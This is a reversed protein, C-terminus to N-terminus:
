FQIRNHLVKGIISIRKEEIQKASFEMPQYRQNEPQLILKEGRLFVRKLTAEDEILVVAIDGSSVTSQKHVFVDDGEHIRANIMSDGVVRLYFYDEPRDSLEVDYESIIQEFADIPSGGRVVGIVPVRVFSKKSRLLEDVSIKYLEALGSLVGAPPTSTGDEWKQVTTFSKYNFRQAIEEQSYGHQKRLQKLRQHLSMSDGSVIMDSVQINKM